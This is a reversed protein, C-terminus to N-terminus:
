SEPFPCWFIQNQLDEETLCSCILLLDDIIRGTPGDQTVIILGPSDRKLIFEHFHRVMTNRDCSVLVRGTDAARALVPADCLGRTGGESATWFDIQPEKRRLETILHQPVDADAIFKLNGM